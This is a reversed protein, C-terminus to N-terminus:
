PATTRPPHPSSESAETLLLDPLRRADRPVVLSRLRYREAVTALAAIGSDTGFLFIRAGIMMANGLLTDDYVAPDQSDVLLLAPRTARLADRPTETTLPFVPEYGAVEVAVGLLASALPDPSLILARAVTPRYHSANV